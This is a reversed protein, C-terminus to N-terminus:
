KACTASLSLSVDGFINNLVDNVYEGYDERSSVTIARTAERREDDSQRAYNRRREYYLHETRESVHSKHLPQSRKPPLTERAAETVGKTLRTLSASPNDLDCPTDDLDTVATANFSERLEEDRAQTSYAVYRERQRRSTIRCHWDCTVLGQDCHRGWRRCSVGWKVRSKHASTAWRCSALVYVITSPGYRQDKSLYTANTTSRRPQHLTSVACLRRREM